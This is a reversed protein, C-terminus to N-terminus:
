EEGEADDGEVKVLDRLMSTVRVAQETHTDIQFVIQPAHRLRLARGIPGRLRQAAEHLADVLDTSPVGGGLPLYDVVARSLDGSVKVQTISIPELRPDKVEERLRVALERHIMEAVREARFGGM